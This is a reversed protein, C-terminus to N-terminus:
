IEGELIFDKIQELWERYVKHTHIDSQITVIKSIVENKRREYELHAKELEKEM